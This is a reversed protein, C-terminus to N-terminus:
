QSESLSLFDVLRVEQNEELGEIIEFVSENQLGVKIDRKAGDKLTVFFSGNSMQIYEHKLTLVNDRRDSIIDVASTMGPRLLPDPDLILIKVLFEVQSRSGVNDREISSLSIDQVVGKFSKSLIASAKIEAEMGSKIKVIDIEPVRAYVFMKSLDDIRMIYDKVEGQKAFQGEIKNVQVVVGNFPSQIPFINESSRVSLAVSVLPDGAKVPSLQKVFMKKIYGDYPATILASKLPEVTGAITVRQVMSERTVRGIKNQSGVRKHSTELFPTIIIVLLLLSLGTLLPLKDKFYSIM